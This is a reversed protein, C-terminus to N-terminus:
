KKEYVLHISKKRFIVYEQNYNGWLTCPEKTFYFSSFLMELDNLKILVKLLMDDLQFIIDETGVMNKLYQKEQEDLVDNVKKRAENDIKFYYFDAFSCDDGNLIWLKKIKEYAEEKDLKLIEFDYHDFGYQINEFFIAGANKLQNTNM